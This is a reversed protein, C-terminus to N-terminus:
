LLNNSRYDTPYNVQKYSVPVNECSDSGPATHYNSVALRTLVICSICYLDPVHLQYQTHHCGCKLSIIAM